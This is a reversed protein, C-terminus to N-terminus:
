AHLEQGEEIRDSEWKSEHETLRLQHESIQSPQLCESNGWPFELGCWVVVVLHLDIEALLWPVLRFANVQKQNFKIATVRANPPEKKAWIKDM